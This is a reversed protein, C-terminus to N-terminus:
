ESAKCPMHVTSTAEWNSRKGDAGAKLFVLDM